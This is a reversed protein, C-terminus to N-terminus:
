KNEVLVTRFCNCSADLVNQYHYGVPASYVMPAPANYTIPPASYVTQPTSYIQNPAPQALGYGIMGGILAPGVFYGFDDYDRYYGGRYGGRYAGGWNGRFNGIQHGPMPSFERRELRGEGRGEHFEERATASLAITGLLLGAIIKSTYKM